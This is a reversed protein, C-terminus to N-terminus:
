LNEKPVNVQWAIWYIIPYRCPKDEAEQSKLTYKSSEFSHFGQPKPWISANAKSRRGRKVNISL